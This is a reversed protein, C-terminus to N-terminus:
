LAGLGSQPLLGLPGQTSGGTTGAIRRTSDTQPAGFSGGGGKHDATSISWLDVGEGEMAGSRRRRVQVQVWFLLAGVMVLGVVAHTAIRLTGVSGV